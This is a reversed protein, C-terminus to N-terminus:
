ASAAGGLGTPIQIVPAAPAQAAADAPAADAVAEVVEVSISGDEGVKAETSLVADDSLGLQHVVAAIAVSKLDDATAVANHLRTTVTKSQIDM